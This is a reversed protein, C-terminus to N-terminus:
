FYPLSRIMTFLAASQPMLSGSLTGFVISMMRACPIESRVMSVITQSLGTAKKAWLPRSSTVPRASRGATSRAWCNSFLETRRPSRTAASRQDGAHAAGGDEVDDAERRRHNAVGGRMETVQRAVARDRRNAADKRR